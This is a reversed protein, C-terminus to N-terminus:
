WDKCKAQVRGYNKMTDIKMNESKIEKKYRNYLPMIIRKIRASILNEGKKFTAVVLSREKTPISRDRALAERMLDLYKHLVRQNIGVHQNEHDLIVQYPCSGVPYQSSIYVDMKTYSFDVSVSKAWVCVRRKQSDELSECEFDTTITQEAITLGPEQFNRSALKVSFGLNEIQATSYNHFYRPQIPTNTVRFVEKRNVPPGGGCQAFATSHILCFTLLAFSFKNWFKFSIM